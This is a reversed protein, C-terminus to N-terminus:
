LKNAERLEQYKFYRDKKSLPKLINFEEPSLAGTRTPRGDQKIMNLRTKNRDKDYVKYFAKRDVCCMVGYKELSHDVSEKNRENTSRDAWRLNCPRNDAKNRNIHDVEPLGLPNPHFALAM